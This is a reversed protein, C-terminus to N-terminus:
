LLGILEVLYLLILFHRYTAPTPQAKIAQVIRDLGTDLKARNWHRNCQLRPVQYLLLPMWLKPKFLLHVVNLISAKLAAKTDRSWKVERSGCIIHNGRQWGRVRALISSANLCHLQRTSYRDIRFPGILSTIRLPSNALLTCCLTL